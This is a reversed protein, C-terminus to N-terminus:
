CDRRVANELFRFLFNSFNEVGKNKENRPPVLQFISPNFNRTVRQQEFSISAQSVVRRQLAPRDEVCTWINWTVTWRQKRKPEFNSVDRRITPRSFADDLIEKKKKKREENFDGEITDPASIKVRAAGNKLVINFSPLKNIRTDACLSTLCGRASFRSKTQSKEDCGKSM